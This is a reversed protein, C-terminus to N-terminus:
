QRKREFMEGMGQIGDALETRYREPICHLTWEMGQALVPALRSEKLCEQTAPHSSHTAILSLVSMVLCIKAAGLAAGCLRDLWRLESMQVGRHLIRAIYFVALYVILFISIYAVAQVIRPEAGALMNERLFAAASENCFVAASLALSLAALRAVQWLFGSWLGLLAGLGLLSLILTDLWYM